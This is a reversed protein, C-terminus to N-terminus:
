IVYRYLFCLFLSTESFPPITGIHFPVQRFLLVCLSLEDHTIISMAIMGYSYRNISMYVSHYGMRRTSEAVRIRRLVIADAFESFSETMILEVTKLEEGM